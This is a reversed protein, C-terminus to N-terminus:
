INEHHIIQLQSSGTQYVIQVQTRIGKLRFFNFYIKKSFM